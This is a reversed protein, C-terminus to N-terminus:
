ASCHHADALGTHCSSPPTNASQSAAFLMGFLYCSLAAPTYATQKDHEATLMREFAQWDDLGLAECEGLWVVAAEIDATISPKM